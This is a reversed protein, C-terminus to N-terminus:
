RNTRKAQETMNPGLFQNALQSYEQTMANLQERSTTYAQWYEDGNGDAFIVSRYYASLNSLMLQDYHSVDQAKDVMTQFQDPTFSLSWDAPTSEDYIDKIGSYIHKMTQVLVSDKQCYLPIANNVIALNAKFQEKTAPESIFQSWIRNDQESFERANAQLTIGERQIIQAVRHDQTPIFRAFIPTILAAMAFAILGSYLSRRWLMRVKKLYKSRFLVYVCLATIVAVIEILGNYVGYETYTKQTGVYILGLLIEWGWGWDKVKWVLLAFTLLIIVFYFLTEVIGVESHSTAFLTLVDVVFLGGIVLIVIQAINLNKWFRRKVEQNSTDTTNLPESTVQERPGEIMAGCKKCFRDGREISAGCASCEYNSESNQTM